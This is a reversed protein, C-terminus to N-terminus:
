GNPVYLNPDSYSGGIQEIAYIIHDLDWGLGLSDAFSEDLIEREILTRVLVVMLNALTAISAVQESTLAPIDAARLVDAIAFRNPIGNDHTIVIFGQETIVNTVVM